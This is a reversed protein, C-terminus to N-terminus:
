PIEVMLDEGQVMVKFSKEPQISDASEGDPGLLPKGTTVDFQAGHEPCTLINNSLAGQSLDGEEHTCWRPLAYFSGNVNAIVLDQGGVNVEKMKGVSIDSKSCARVLTM